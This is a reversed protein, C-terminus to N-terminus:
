VRLGGRTSEESITAKLAPCLLLVAATCCCNDDDHHCKHCTDSVRWTRAMGTITLALTQLTVRTRAPAETFTQGGAYNLDPHGSDIGSDVIGVVV